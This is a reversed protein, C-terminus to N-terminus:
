LSVITFLVNSKVVDFGECAVYVPWKDLVSGQVDLCLQIM